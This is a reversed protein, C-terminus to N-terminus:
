NLMEIAQLLINDHLDNFRHYHPSFINRLRENDLPLPIITTVNSYFECRGIFCVCEDALLAFNFHFM